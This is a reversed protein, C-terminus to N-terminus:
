WLIRRLAGAKLCPPALRTVRASTLAVFMGRTAPKTGLLCFLQTHFLLMHALGEFVFQQWRGLLFPRQRRHQPAATLEVVSAQLFAFGGPLLAADRHAEGHLRCLQGCSRLAAQSFRRMETLKAM